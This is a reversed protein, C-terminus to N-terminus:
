SSLTIKKSLIDQVDNTGFNTSTDGLSLNSFMKKTNSSAAMKFVPPWRPNEAPYREKRIFYMRYMMQVLNPAQIVLHFIRFGKKPMQRAAMKFFQRWRPNEAPYHVKRLFYMRYMMQVLNPTEIM